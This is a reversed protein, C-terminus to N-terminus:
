VSNIVGKAARPLRQTGLPIALIAALQELPRTAPQPILTIIPQAPKTIITMLRRTIVRIPRKVLQKIVKLQTARTRTTIGPIRVLLNKPGPLQILIRIPITVPKIQRIQNPKQLPPRKQSRKRRRKLRNRPRRKLHNRLKKRKRIPTLRIRRKLHVM